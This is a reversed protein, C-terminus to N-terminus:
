STKRLASALLMLVRTGHHQRAEFRVIITDVRADQLALQKVAHGAANGLAAPIGIEDWELPHQYNLLSGATM